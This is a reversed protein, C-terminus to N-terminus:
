GQHAPLSSYSQIFDLRIELTKGESDTCLLFEGELQAKSHDKKNSRSVIDLPMVCLEKKDIGNLYHINLQQGHMIALELESHMECSVTKYPVAHHELNLYNKQEFRPTCICLFVLDHKGCNRIMQPMGAPITVADLYSVKEPTSHNIIVEGEGELIIYREITNKVAHLQTSVGSAVSAKAISCNQDDAHNLLENITCREVTPFQKDSQYPKVYSM